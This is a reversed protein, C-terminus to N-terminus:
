QKPGNLTALTKMRDSGFIQTLAVRWQDDIKRLAQPGLGDRVAVYYCLTFESEDIGSNYFLRWMTEFITRRIEKRKSESKDLAFQPYPHCQTDLLTVARDRTSEAAQQYKLRAQEQRQYFEEDLKLAEARITENMGIRTSIQVYESKFSEFGKVLTSGELGEKEDTLSKLDSQRLAIDDSVGQYRQYRTKLKDIQKKADDATDVVALQERLLKRDPAAETELEAIVSELTKLNERATKLESQIATLDSELKERAVRATELDALRTTQTTITASLAKITANDDTVLAQASNRAAKATDRAETATDLAGQADALTKDAADLDSQADDAAKVKSDLTDKATKLEAKATKIQAELDGRKEDGEPLEALEDELATLADQKDKVTAQATAREAIADTLADSLTDKTTQADDRTQTTAALNTEATDLVTQADALTKEHTALDAKAAKLDAEASSKANEAKAVEAKSYINSEIAAKTDTEKKEAELVALEAAPLKRKEADLKVDLKNLRLRILEIQDEANQGAKVLVRQEEIQTDLKNRETNEPDYFKSKKLKEIEALQVEIAEKLEDIKRIVIESRKIEQSLTELKERDNQINFQLTKAADGLTAFAGSSAQTKWSELVGLIEPELAIWQEDSLGKDPTKPTGGEIRERANRIHTKIVTEYEDIEKIVNRDVKDSRFAELEEALSKLEREIGLLDFEERLPFGDPRLWHLATKFRGDADIRLLAYKEDDSRGVLVNDSSWIAAWQARGVGHPGVQLAGRFVRILATPATTVHAITITVPKGDRTLEVSASEGEALTSLAKRPSEGTEWVDGALLDGEIALAGIQKFPTKVVAHGDRSEFQDEVVRLTEAWLNLPTYRKTAQGHILNFEVARSSTIETIEPIAIRFNGSSSSLRGWVEGSKLSINQRYEDTPALVETESKPAVRIYSSGNITIMAQSGDGTTVSDGVRVVPVEMDTVKQDHIKVNGVADSVTVDPPPIYASVRHFVLGLAVLGIIQVWLAATPPIGFARHPNRARVNVAVVSLDFPDSEFLERFHAGQNRIQDVRQQLVKDKIASREFRTTEDDSMRGEVYRRIDTDRKSM